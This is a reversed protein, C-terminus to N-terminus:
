VAATPTEIVSIVGRGDLRRKAAGVRVGWNYIDGMYIPDDKRSYFQIGGENREVCQDNWVLLASVCNANLTGGYAVPVPTAPATIDYLVNANWRDNQRPNLWNIQGWRGVVGKELMNANGSKEYDIIDEIRRMDEWQEVTPLAFWQGMEINQKKIISELALLDEYQFRFVNGNYGGKTGISSPRALTDGTRKKGTTGVVYAAMDQAWQTAIYNAIATNISAAEQTAMDEAKSYSLEAEQLQELVIPHPLRIITNSYSLKDNVRIVPALATAATNNNASTYYNAKVGGLVPEESDLLQPIEITQANPQGGNKSNKYFANSPFLKKEAMSKYVSLRVEAM